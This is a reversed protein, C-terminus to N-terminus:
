CVAAPEAERPRPAFVIKGQNVRPAQTLCETLDDWQAQTLSLNALEKSSRGDQLVIRAKVWTGVSVTEVYIEM